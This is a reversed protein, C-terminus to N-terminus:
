DKFTKKRLEYSAITPIYYTINALLSGVLIALAYNPILLPLVSLLFPRIAFSDIYEAPGFEMVANRLQKAYDAIELKKGNKLKKRQNLDRYVIIGYFGFNEAWTAVFASLVINGFLLMSISSFILAFILGVFEALAYRNFWENLKRRM